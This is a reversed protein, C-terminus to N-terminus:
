IALSMPKPSLFYGDRWCGWGKRCACESVPVVGTYVQCRHFHWHKNEWCRTLSKHIFVVSVQLVLFCLCKWIQFDWNASQIKLLHKLNSPQVSDNVNKKTIINKITNTDGYSGIDSLTASINYIWLLFIFKWYEYINYWISINFIILANRPCRSYQRKIVLFCILPPFSLQYLIKCNRSM